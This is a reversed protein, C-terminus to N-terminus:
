TGDVLVKLKEAHNKAMDGYDGALAKTFMEHQLAARESPAANRMNQLDDRLAKPLAGGLGGGPLAGLRGKLAQRRDVKDVRNGARNGAKDGMQFNELSDARRHVDISQSQQDVTEATDASGSGLLVSVLLVVAAVLIIAVALINRRLIASFSKQAM